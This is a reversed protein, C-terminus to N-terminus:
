PRGKKKKEGKVSPSAGHAAQPDEGGIKKKGWLDAIFLRTERREESSEKFLDIEKLRPGLLNKKKKGGKGL